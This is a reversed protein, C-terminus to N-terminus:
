LQNSEESITFYRGKVIKASDMAQDFELTYCKATIDKLLEYQEKSVESDTTFMLVQDGCRPIFHQILARKHDQDLRGMLTDFVFPLKWGSVKFMAWIVTLMLMEKEGASLREKTILHQQRNYLHLEFTSHDIHIRDIYEKKRFLINVMKTAENAVDDLKKRWQRDRFRQSVLLLKETMAFSNEAKHYERIKDTIKNAAATHLRITETAEHIEKNYHEILLRLQEVRKTKTEIQALIERFESSQDNVEIAKRLRQAEILLEANRDYLQIYQKPDIQEIQKFLNHIESRQAFSARHILQINEPQMIELIGKHLQAIDLSVNSKQLQHVLANLKEIELASSVYEFSENEKELDLQKVVKSLLDKAIYFPLLSNTFSRIQETNAKRENEIVNVQSALRQREERQLGGHEDFDKKHQKIEDNLHTIEDESLVILSAKEEVITQLEAIKNMLEQQDAIEKAASANKQAYQMRYTQLDKELNMFLDLNFLIKGSESLYEPIKEDSVIRSIDEGDFLCLEFLRPPMEERLRNQFDSQEQNNLHVGNRQVSFEERLKGKKFHWHRIIVYRTPEFEEISTYELRIQYKNEGSQVAKRNLLSLIKKFYPENDVMFGYAMSGFLVIRLSELITTKGAGNKGGLLVVNREKTTEFDFAHSPGYYAGINGLLLKTIHM